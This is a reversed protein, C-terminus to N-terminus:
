FLHMLGEYSAAGTAATGLRLIKSQIGKAEKFPNRSKQSTAGDLESLWEAIRLDEKEEYVQLAASDGHKQLRRKYHGPASELRKRFTAAQEPDNDLSDKVLGKYDHGWLHGSIQRYTLYRPGTSHYKFPRHNAADSVSRHQKRFGLMQKRPMAAVRQTLQVLWSGDYNVRGLWSPWSCYLQLVDAIINLVVINTELFHYAV